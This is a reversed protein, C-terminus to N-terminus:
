ATAIRSIERLEATHNEEPGAVELQLLIANLAELYETAEVWFINLLDEPPNTM